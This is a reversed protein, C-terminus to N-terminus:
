QKFVHVFIIWDEDAEKQKFAEPDSM